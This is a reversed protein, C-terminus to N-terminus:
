SRVMLEIDSLEALGLHTWILYVFSFLSWFILFIAVVEHALGFFEDEGARATLPNFGFAFVIVINVVVAPVGAVSARTM